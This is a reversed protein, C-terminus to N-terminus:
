GAYDYKSVFDYLCVDEMADPREPYINELLNDEFIDNSDTNAKAMDQLVRHDKLRRSRKHPMNVDVWKVTDSKETLHDGLLLDGAEYM